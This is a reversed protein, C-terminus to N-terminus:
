LIAERQERLRDAPRRRDAPAPLHDPAADPPDSPPAPRAGPPTDPALIKVVRAPVGVAVANPPVDRTVVANAGIRAGAGVRVDGIIVAGCGIDAGPGIVPKEWPRDKDAVGLTTNQRIHVDDGIERAGLIMGGFHWLRVRRGVKVTYGLKIGWVWQCWTYALTYLPGLPARLPRPLRLRANGLRHVLLVWFGPELLSREHTRFDEAILARLSIGPPNMDRDGAPLEKGPPPAPAPTHGPASQAPARSM